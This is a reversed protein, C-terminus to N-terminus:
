AARAVGAGFEYGGLLQLMIRFLPCRNESVIMNLCLFFLGANQAPRGTDPRTTRSRRAALSWATTRSSTSSRPSARDVAKPRARARAPYRGAERRVRRPLRAGRGDQRLPHLRSRPGAQQRSATPRDLRREPQDRGADPLKHRVATDLEMANLGFSGDGHLVLVQTDPKAAKAGVGFPLGVGM